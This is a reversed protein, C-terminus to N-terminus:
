RYYTTTPKGDGSQGVSRTHYPSKFFAEDKFLKWLIKSEEFNNIERIHKPRDNFAISVQHQLSDIDGREILPGSQLRRRHHVVNMYTYDAWNTEYLAKM